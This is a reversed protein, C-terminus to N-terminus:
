SAAIQLATVDFQRSDVEVNSDLLLKATGHYGLYAAKHITTTYESTGAKIKDKDGQFLLWLMAITKCNHNDRGGIEAADKLSDIMAEWYFSREELLNWQYCHNGLM